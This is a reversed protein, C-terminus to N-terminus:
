SQTITSFVRISRTVLTNAERVRGFQTLEGFFISRVLAQLPIQVWTRSTESDNLKTTSHTCSLPVYGTYPKLGLGSSSVLM